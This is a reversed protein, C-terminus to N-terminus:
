QCPLGCSHLQRAVELCRLRVYCQTPSHTLRDRAAYSSLVPPCPLFELHWVLLTVLIRLELYALRRGFCGRVGLGFPLTPGAASTQDSGKTCGAVLALGAVALALAGSRTSRSM